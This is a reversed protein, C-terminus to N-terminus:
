TLQPGLRPFPRWADDQAMIGPLHKSGTAPLGDPDIVALHDIIGRRVAEYVRQGRDGSGRGGSMRAAAGARIVDVVDDADANGVLPELDDHLREVIAAWM